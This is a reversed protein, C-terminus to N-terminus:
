WTNHLRSAQTHSRTSIIPSVADCNPQYLTSIPTHYWNVYQLNTLKWLWPSFYRKNRLFKLWTLAWLAWDDRQAIALQEFRYSSSFGLQSVEQVQSLAHAIQNTSGKIHRRDSTFQSIFDLHWIQRPSHWKPSSSPSYLLPKRDTLMYFQRSELIHWFHKIALYISLLQQGLTSYRTEAPKLKRSFYAIPCWKDQVFQQLITGVAIDSADTMINTPANMVPHSLLM